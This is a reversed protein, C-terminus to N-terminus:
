RPPGAPHCLRQGRAESSSRKACLHSGSALIRTPAPFPTHPVSNTPRWIEGPPPVPIKPLQPSYEVGTGGSCREPRADCSRRWSGPSNRHAAAAQGWAGGGDVPMASQSCQAEGPGSAADYVDNTPMAPACLGAHRLKGVLLPALHHDHRADACNELPHTGCLLAALWCRLPLSCALAWARQVTPIMLTPFRNRQKTCRQPRAQPHGGPKAPPGAEDIAIFPAAMGRGDGGGVM